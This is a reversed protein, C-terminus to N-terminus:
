RINTKSISVKLVQAEALARIELTNPLYQLTFHGFHNRFPWSDYDKTLTGELKKQALISSLLLTNISVSVRFLIQRIRKIYSPVKLENSRMWDFHNHVYTETVIHQDNANFITTM